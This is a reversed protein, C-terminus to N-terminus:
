SIIGNDILSPAKKNFEAEVGGWVCVGGCGWGLVRMCRNGETEKVREMEEGRDIYKQKVIERWRVKM